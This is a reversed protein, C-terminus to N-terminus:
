LGKIQQDIKNLETQPIRKIQEDFSTLKLNTIILQHHEKLKDPLVTDDKIVSPLNYLQILKIATAPGVRPIGKIGDIKDSAMALVLPIYEATLGGRSFNKYIYSMANFKDYLKLEIGTSKRYTSVAQICNEFRCTQLLDKDISLIINLTEPDRSNLFKRTIVYHPALDMEYEQSAVVCSLNPKNFRANVENLYFSKINNMLEKYAEELYFYKQSEREEKYFKSITTNQLCQGGDFFLVFKPSYYKFKSYINNLFEKLEKPYITPMQKTQLYNGVEM